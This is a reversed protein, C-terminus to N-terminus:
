HQIFLRGTFYKLQAFICADSAPSGVANVFMWVVGSTPAIGGTPFHHLENASFDPEFLSSPPLMSGKAVRLGVNGGYAAAFYCDDGAYQAPAYYAPTPSASIGGFQTIPASAALASQESFHADNIEANAASLEPAQTDTHNQESEIDSVIIANSDNIRNSMGKGTDSGFFASVIVGVIIILSVVGVSAVILTRKHNFREMTDM